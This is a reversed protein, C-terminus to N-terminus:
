EEWKKRVRWAELESVISHFFLERNAADNRIFFKKRNEEFDPNKNYPDFNITVLIGNDAIDELRTGEKIEGYYELDYEGNPVDAYLMPFGYASPMIDFPLADFKYRGKSLTLTGLAKHDETPGYVTYDGEIAWPLRNKATTVGTIEWVTGDDAVFGSLEGPREDLRRFTIELARYRGPSYHQFYGNYIEDPVFASTHLSIVEDALEGSVVDRVECAWTNGYGLPISIELDLVLTLADTKLRDEPPPEKEIVDNVDNKSYCGILGLGVISVVVVVPKVTAKIM